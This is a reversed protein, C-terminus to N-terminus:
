IHILSLAYGYIVKYFLNFIDILVKKIGKLM